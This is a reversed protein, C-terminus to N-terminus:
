CHTKQQTEESAGHSATDTPGLTTDWGSSERRAAGPRPVPGAWRIEALRLWGGSIVHHEQRRPLQGIVLLVTGLGGDAALEVSM